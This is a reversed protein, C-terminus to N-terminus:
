PLWGLEYAALAPTEHAMLVTGGAVGAATASWTISSALSRETLVGTPSGLARAAIHLTLDVVDEPTEEYGHTVDLEAVRYGPIRYPELLRGDPLWRLQTLSAVQGGIRLETIRKVRKSPLRMVPGGLDDIRITETVETAIHWGCHNRIRQSAAKLAVDLFPQSAPIAGQSRQEMQAATALPDM